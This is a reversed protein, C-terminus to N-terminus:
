PPILISVQLDLGELGNDLVCAQCGDVVETRLSRRSNIYLRFGLGWSRGVLSQGRSREFSKKEFPEKVSKALQSMKAPGKFPSGMWITRRIV